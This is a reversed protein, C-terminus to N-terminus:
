AQLRVMVDSQIGTCERLTAETFHALKTRPPKRHKKPRKRKLLPATTQQAQKGRWKSQIKTAAASQSITTRTVTGRIMKGVARELDRQGLVGDEDFDFISFAIRAKWEVHARPSFCSYLDILELLTLAQEGTESFVRVMRDMFEIYSFEQLYDQLQATTLAVAKRLTQEGAVSTTRQVMMVEQMPDANVLELVLEFVREINQIEEETLFTVDALDKVENRSLKGQWLMGELTPSLELVMRRCGSAREGREEEVDETETEFTDRALPNDFPSTSDGETEPM